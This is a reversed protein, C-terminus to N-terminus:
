LGSTLTKKQGLVRNKAMRGWIKDVDWKQSGQLSPENGVKPNIKRSKTESNCGKQLFLFRGASWQPAGDALLLGLARLAHGPCSHAGFVISFRTKAEKMGCLLCKDSILM